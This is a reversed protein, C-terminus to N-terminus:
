LYGYALWGGDINVISGTMYSSEEGAIYVALGAIDEVEGIRHQPTRRLIAEMSIAGKDIVDQVLETRVYGPAIANVRIKRDAWEIALVKTLENVAAKSACYAARRPAALIGNVSSINIINGGGQPIMIRAAAQCAFFVGFLDTEMAARWDEPSLDESPSGMTVGANNVLLDLRGYRDVTKQVLENISEANRVNVTIASAEGGASKIEQAVKELADLSRSAVVVSAGERAFRVAIAKGIGKSAGTIIAVKNKLKM